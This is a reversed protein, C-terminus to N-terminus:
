HWQKKVERELIKPNELYLDILRNIVRNPNQCKRDMLQKWKLYKEAPVQCSVCKYKKKNDKM